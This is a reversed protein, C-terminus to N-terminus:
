SAHPRAKRELVARDEHPRYYGKVLRATRFGWSEYLRRAPKNNPEVTLCLAHGLRDVEALAAEFLKTGVGRGRWDRAVFAKHLWWPGALTPFVLVAGIAAGDDALAVYVITQEVWVRWVHEGDPIFEGHPHERWAERDLAAIALFDAPTARRIQM